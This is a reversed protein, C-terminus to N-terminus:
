RYRGRRDDREREREYIVEREYYDYEKKPPPAEIKKREYEIERIRQRRERRIDDSIEVLHLVDEYRLYDMVYFFYDTEEYDYGMADIAEKLVLDKTIEWDTAYERDDSLFKSRRVGNYRQWTVEQAGGGMGEMRVRNTGPPVDVIAWDKTAGNHAEGMYAREMVKRNYYDAEDDVDWGDAHKRRPLSVSRRRSIQLDDAPAKRERVDREFTIDEEYRGNEGRRNRISIELTEDRPPSPPPPPPSPSRAREVRDRERDRPKPRGPPSREEHRFVIEEREVPRPRPPPPQDGRRHMFDDRDAQSSRSPPPRESKRSDRIIIEDREIDKRPKPPPPSWDDERVTRRDSVVLPGAATRGYDERLFEPQPGPRRGGFESRPRRIEADLEEYDRQSRRGGGYYDREREDYLEATPYARRSGM